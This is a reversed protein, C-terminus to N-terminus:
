ASQHGGVVDLHAAAMPTGWMKEINYFSRVEPRFLHVIVDGLDLVVWDARETGEIRINKLGRVSLRDKLKSAMAVIHRSSTGTVVFMYDALATQEDLKIIVMDEAKDADLSKEVLNRLDDPGNIGSTDHTLITM